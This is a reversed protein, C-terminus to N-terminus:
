ISTKRKIYARYGCFKSTDSIVTEREASTSRSNSMGYYASEDWVGRPKFNALLTCRAKLNASQKGNALWLARCVVSNVDAFDDSVFHIQAENCSSSNTLHRRIKFFKVDCLRVDDDAAPRTVRSGSPSSSINPGYWPNLSDMVCALNNLSM